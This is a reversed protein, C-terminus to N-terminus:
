RLPSTSVRSLTEWFQGFGPDKGILGRWLQKRRKGEAQWDAGAQAERAECEDNDETQLSTSQTIIAPISVPVPVLSPTRIDVAKFKGKRMRRTLLSAVVMEYSQNETQVPEPGLEPDLDHDHDHDHNDFADCFRGTHQSQRWISGLADKWGHEFAELDSLEPELDVYGAQGIDWEPIEEALRVREASNAIDSLDPLDRVSPPPQRITFARSLPALNGSCDAPAKERLYQASKCSCPYQLNASYWYVEKDVKESKPPQDIQVRRRKRSRLDGLDGEKDNIRRVGDSLFEQGIQHRNAREEDSIAHNSALHVTYSTPLVATSLTDLTQTELQSERVAPTAPQSSQSLQSRSRLRTSPMELGHLTNLSAHNYVTRPHLQSLPVHSSTNDRSCRTLQNM